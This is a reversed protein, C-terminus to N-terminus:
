SAGSDQMESEPVGLQEGLDVTRQRKAVGAQELAQSSAQLATIIDAMIRLHGDRLRRGARIAVSEETAMGTAPNIVLNHGKEMIDALSARKEFGHAQAELIHVLCGRVRPDVWHKDSVHVFPPTEADHFRQLTEQRTENNKDSMMLIAMILDTNIHGAPLLEFPCMHDYDLLKTHLRLYRAADMAAERGVLDAMSQLFTEKTIFMTDYPNVGQSSFGYKYVLEDNGYPGYCNFIEKAESLNKAAVVLIESSNQETLFEIELQHDEHKIGLINSMKEGRHLLQYFLSRHGAQGYGDNKFEGTANYFRPRGADEQQYQTANLLVMKHNFLDGLPIMGDGVFSDVQFARSSIWSAARKVNNFSFYDADFTSNHENILPLIVQEYDEKLDTLDEDARYILGTGKLLKLENPHWFFPVYERGPLINFYPHWKSKSELSWEHLVAIILGLQGDLGEAKLIDGVSSSSVTLCISKPIRCLVEGKSINRKAFVALALGSLDEIGFRIELGSKEWYVGSANLWQILSNVVRGRYLKRKKRGATLRKATKNSIIHEPRPEEVIQFRREAEKTLMEDVRDVEADSVNFKLSENFMDEPISSLPYDLIPLLPHGTSGGRIKWLSSVCKRPKPTQSVQHAFSRPSRRPMTFCLSSYSKFSPVTQLAMLLAM